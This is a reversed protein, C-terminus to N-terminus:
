SVPQNGCPSSTLAMGALNLKAGFRLANQTRKVIKQMGATENSELRALRVIRWTWFSSILAFGAGASAFVFGSALTAPTTPASVKAFTLVVGSITTLIVQCWWSLWGVRWLALARRNSPLTARAVQAGSALEAARKDIAADVDKGAEAPTARLHSQKTRLALRVPPRLANACAILSLVLTSSRM